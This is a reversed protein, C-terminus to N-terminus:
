PNVLRAFAALESGNIKAHQGYDGHAKPRHVKRLLIQQSFGSRGIRKFSERM